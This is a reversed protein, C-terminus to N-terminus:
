GTLLFRFVFWSVGLGMTISLLTGLIYWDACARNGSDRSSYRFIAKAAVVFSLFGLISSYSIANDYYSILFSLFILSRETLGILYGGRPIGGCRNDEDGNLEKAVSALIADIVIGPLVLALLFGAVITVFTSVPELAIIRFMTLVVICILM